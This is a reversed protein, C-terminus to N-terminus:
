IRDFQDPATLMVLPAVAPATIPNRYARAYPKMIYEVVVMTFLIVGTMRSATMLATIYPAAPAAMPQHNARFYLARGVATHYESLLPFDREKRRKVRSGVMRFRS